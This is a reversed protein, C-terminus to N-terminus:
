NRITIQKEFDDAGILIVCYDAMTYDKLKSDLNDTLKILGCNPLLYHCIRYDPYINQAISLLKNSKNSSILCLKIPQKHVIKHEYQTVFSASQQEDYNKPAQLLQSGQKQKIASTSRPTTHNKDLKLPLEQSAFEKCDQKQINQDKTLNELAQKLECNELSLNSIEEYASSLQLKLHEIQQKLGLTEDDSIDDSLELLSKSAGDTILDNSINNEPSTETLSHNRTKRLTINEFFNM